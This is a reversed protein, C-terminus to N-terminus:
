SFSSCWSVSLSIAVSSLSRAAVVKGAAAAGAHGEDFHYPNFCTIGSAVRPLCCFPRFRLLSSRAPYADGGAVGRDVPLISPLCCTLIFAPLPLVMMSLILLILDVPPDAM